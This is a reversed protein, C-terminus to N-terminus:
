VLRLRQRLALTPFRPRVDRLRLALLVVPLVLRRLPPLRRLRVPTPDLARPAFPQLLLPTLHHFPAEGVDTLGPATPPPPQPPQHVHRPPIDHLDGRVNQTQQHPLQEPHTLRPRQLPRSTQENPDSAAPIPQRATPGAGPTDPSARWAPSRSDSWWSHCPESVM